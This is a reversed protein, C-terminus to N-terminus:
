AEKEVQHLSLYGPPMPTEEVATQHFNISGISDFLGGSLPHVEKNQKQKALEITHQIVQSRFDTPQEHSENISSMLSHSLDGVSQKKMEKVKKLTSQVALQYPTLEEHSEEEVKPKEEVKPMVILKQKKGEEIAKQIIQKQKDKALQIHKEIIDRRRKEEFQRDREFEELAKRQREEEEKM